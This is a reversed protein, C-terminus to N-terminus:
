GWRNRISDRCAWVVSSPQMGQASPKSPPRHSFFGDFESEDTGAHEASIDVQTGVRVELAEADGPLQGADPQVFVGAVERRHFKVEHGHRRTRLGRRLFRGGEEFAEGPMLRATKM